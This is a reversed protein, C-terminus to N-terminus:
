KSILWNYNDGIVVLQNSQFTVLLEVYSYNNYLINVLKKNNLGLKEFMDHNIVCSFFFNDNQNFTFNLIINSNSHEISILKAYILFEKNIKSEYAEILHQKNTVKNLPNLNSYSLITIKYISSVEKNRLHFKEPIVLVNSYRNLEITNNKYIVSRIRLMDGANIYNYADSCILNSTTSQDVVSYYYSNDDINRKKDVVLVIIDCDDTNTVERLLKTKPYILSNENLFYNIAWQRLYNIKQIDYKEMVLNGQSAQTAEHSNSFLDFLAWSSKIKSINTISLYINKRKKQRFIGRQIRIIDGVKNIFPTDEKNTSKLIVHFTNDQFDNINIWNYEPSLVKIAVIFNSDHENEKTPYTSDFIIGYLNYDKEDKIDKFDTYKYEM